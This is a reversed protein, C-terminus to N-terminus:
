QRGSPDRGTALRQMRREILRRDTDTPALQIARTFAAEAEDVRGLKELTVGRTSHLIHYDTLDDAVEEVLKMAAEPGDAEGVAIARNLSVIPNPLISLLQDYLAVIQPWDTHEFHQTSCHVAQIAAQIQFPGPQNRRLCARVLGTGQEILDIDWVSRDQDALLVPEGDVFRAPIRSENLLLLALLGAVEPEDPMLEVLSRALRIAEARLPARLEDDAGTNYILYVVTLVSRLREPLDHEAPVRYPIGAAKIKYKARVLRKAMAAESVLFSRAIEPVSLGGLLRLTLAVRHEVRMSPHCCTFVLRLRDDEVPGSEEPETIDVAPRQTDLERELERGRGARRLQDIARNRAATVIWGVPNPPLGDLKWKESAVVFADQVADEAITIDGFHRILTAVAQGHAERFVREM